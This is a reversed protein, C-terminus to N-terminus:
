NRRKWMDLGRLPVSVIRSAYFFRLILKRKWMDLGRLPVSVILFPSYLGYLRLKWMDLGRLPGSVLSANNLRPFNQDPKWM